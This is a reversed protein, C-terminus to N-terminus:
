AMARGVREWFFNAEFDTSPRAKRLESINILPNQPELITFPDTTNPASHRERDGEQEKKKKRATDFKRYISDLNIGMQNRFFFTRKKPFDCDRILALCLVRCYM